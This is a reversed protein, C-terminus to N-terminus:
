RKKKQGEGTFFHQHDSIGYVAQTKFRTYSAYFCGKNM